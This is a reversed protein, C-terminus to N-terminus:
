LLLLLLILVIPSLLVAFALPFSGEERLEKRFKWFYGEFFPSTIAIATSLGPSFRKMRGVLWLRGIISGGVLAMLLLAPLLRPLDVYFEFNNM